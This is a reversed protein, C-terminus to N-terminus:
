QQGGRTKVYLSGYIWFNTIFGVSMGYSWWNSKTVATMVGCLVTLILAVLGTWSQRIFASSRARRVTSVGGALLGLGILVHVSLLISTATRAGGSVEAPLGILNVGMGLLFMLSMGGLQDRAQKNLPKLQSPKQM